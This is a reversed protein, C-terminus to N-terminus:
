MSSVIVFPFCIHHLSQSQLLGYIHVSFINMQIMNLTGGAGLFYLTFLTLDHSRTYKSHSLSYETLQPGFSICKVYKLRPERKQQQSPKSSKESGIWQLRSENWLLLGSILLMYTKIKAKLLSILFTIRAFLICDFHITCYYIMELMKTM